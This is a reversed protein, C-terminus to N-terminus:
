VEPDEPGRDGPTAALTRWNTLGASDRGTLLETVYVTGNKADRLM